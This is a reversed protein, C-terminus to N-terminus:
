ELKNLYKKYNEYNFRREKHIVTPPYILSLFLFLLYDLALLCFHFVGSVNGIGLARKLRTIFSRDTYGLARKYVKVTKHAVKHWSYANSLVKNYEDNKVSKIKELNEITEKIGQIISKKEPNVLKVM